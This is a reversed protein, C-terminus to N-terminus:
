FHRQRCVNYFIFLVVVSYYCIYIIDVRLRLPAAVCISPGPNFLARRGKGPLAAMKVTRGKLTLRAIETFQMRNACSSSSHEARLCTWLFQWKQRIMTIKPTVHASTTKWQCEEASLPVHVAHGPGCIHVTVEQVKAKVLRLVVSHSFEYATWASWPWVCLEYDSGEWSFNSGPVETNRALCTVVRGYSRKYM